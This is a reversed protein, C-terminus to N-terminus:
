KGENIHIPHPYKNSKRKNELEWLPQLNSFHMALKQQEPDILQFSALPRIHDIQWKSGRNDWTMGPKFQKELHVKLEQITCGIIEKIHFAKPANQRQLADRLNARLRQALVFCPDKKRRAAEWANLKHRNKKRWISARAVIHDRNLHYLERARARNAKRYDSLKKRYKINYAKCYESHRKKKEPTARRRLIEERHRYYSDRNMERNRERNKRKWERFYARRKELGQPSLIRRRQKRKRKPVPAVVSKEELGVLHLQTNM